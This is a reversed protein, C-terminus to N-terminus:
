VGVQPSIARGIAWSMDQYICRGQFCFFRNLSGPRLISEKELCSARGFRLGQQALPGFDVNFIYQAGSGPRFRGLVGSRRLSIVTRVRGRFSGRSPPWSFFRVDCSSCGPYPHRTSGFGELRFNFGLALSTVEVSTTSGSSQPAYKWPRRMQSSM